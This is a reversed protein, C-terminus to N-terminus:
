TKRWVIDFPPPVSMAAVVDTGIVVWPAFWLGRDYILLILNVSGEGIPTDLCDSKGPHEPFQV